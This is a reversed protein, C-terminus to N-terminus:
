VPKARLPKPLSPVRLTYGVSRAARMPYGCPRAALLRPQVPKARLPKPLSPVRLTYGVSRAARM